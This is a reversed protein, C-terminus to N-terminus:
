NAKIPKVLTGYVYPVTSYSEQGEPERIDVEAWEM